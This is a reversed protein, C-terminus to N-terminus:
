NKKSWTNQLSRQLKKLKHHFSVFHAQL